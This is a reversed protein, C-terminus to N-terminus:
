SVSAYVGWRTDYHKFLSLNWNKLYQENENRVVNLKKLYFFDQLQDRTLLVFYNKTTLTLLIFVKKM